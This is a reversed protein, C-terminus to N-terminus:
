AKAPSPPTKTAGAAKRKKMKYVIYLLIALVVVGGVIGVIMWVRQMDDDSGDSCPEFGAKYANASDDYYGGVDACTINMCAYNREFAAKVVAFDTSAAGVKLNDHITKADSASCFAVRPLIAAAFTAAEAKTKLSRDSAEGWAYKLAGQILPVAGHATISDLLPRLDSCRGAELAELATSMGEFVKTNAQSVGTLEGGTTGCTKFDVCRKQSLGYMLIGSATDQTTQLSGTYFAVGEDWRHVAVTNASVGAECLDIAAEFEYLAWMWFNLFVSGKKVGQVRTADDDYTAFDAGGKGSSFTLASGALAAQVWKDAYDYDGYYAFYREFERHGVMKTQAASSFSKISKTPKQSLGGNDYINKAGAYDVPSEKLKGEIGQQDLDLTNHPVVNTPPSYAAIKPYDCTYSASHLCTSLRRPAVMASCGVALALSTFRFLM